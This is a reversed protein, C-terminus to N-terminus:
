HYEEKLMRQIIGAPTKETINLNSKYSKSNILTANSEDRYYQWLSGSYDNDYEILNYLLMVVDLDKEKNIEANNIESICGTFPEYIDRNYTQLEPDLDTISALCTRWYVIVYNM